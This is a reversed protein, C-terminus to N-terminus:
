ILKENFQIKFYIVVFAPDKPDVVVRHSLPGETPMGVKRRIAVDNTKEKRVAQILRKQQSAHIRM